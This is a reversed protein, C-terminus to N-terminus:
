APSEAEAETHGMRHQNFRAAMLPHPRHRLHAAVKFPQTHRRYFARAGRLGRRHDHGTVTRTQEFDRTFEGIAGEQEQLREFGQAVRTFKQLRRLLQM